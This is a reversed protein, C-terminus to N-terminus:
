KLNTYIYIYKYNNNRGGGGWDTSSELHFRPLSWVSLCCVSISDGCFQPRGTQKSGHFSFSSRILGLFLNLQLVWRNRNLFFFFFSSLTLSYPLSWVRRGVQKEAPLCFRLASVLPTVLSCPEASLRFFGFWYNKKKILYFIFLLSYFRLLDWVTNIQVLLQSQFWGPVCSMKCFVCSPKGLIKINQSQGIKTSERRCHADRVALYRM